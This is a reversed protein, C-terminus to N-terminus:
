IESFEILWICVAVNAHFNDLSSLDFYPQNFLLSALHFFDASM